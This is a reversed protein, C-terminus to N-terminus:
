KMVYILSFPVSKALDKNPLPSVDDTIADYTEIDDEFIKVIRGSIYQKAYDKEINIFKAWINNKEDVKLRKEQDIAEFLYKLIEGIKSPNNYVEFINSNINVKGFYMYSM